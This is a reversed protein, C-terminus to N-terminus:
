RVYIILCLRPMRILVVARSGTQQKTVSTLTAESHQVNWWMAWKPTMKVHSRLLTHTFLHSRPTILNQSLNSLQILGTPSTIVAHCLLYIRGLWSERRARVTQFTAWILDEQNMLAAACDSTRWHQCTFWHIHTSLTILFQSRDTQYVLCNSKRKKGKNGSGKKKDRETTNHLTLSFSMFHSKFYLIYSFCYSM